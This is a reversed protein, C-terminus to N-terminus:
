ARKIKKYILSIEKLNEFTYIGLVLVNLILLYIINDINNILYIQVFILLISLIFSKTDISIYIMKKTDIYRYFFLVFYSLLTSIAAAIPGYIPIMILNAILNVLASVLTTKLAGNTTKSATYITGLFNSFIYFSFGLLLIPIFYIVEKYENGIFFHVITNIFLNILIIILFIFRTLSNFVTSYFIDTDKKNFEQVSSIQWAKAFINYFNSLLQPFKNAVSYIGLSSLGSFYTILYRDSVNTAWWTVSNPILPLCFRNFEKLYKIDICSISFYKYIRGFFLLIITCLLHASIYSIFYGEIGFHFYAILIINFSAFFISYLVDAFVYLKIKNIARSFEHIIRYLTVFFLIGIIVKIDFKFTFISNIGIAIISSLLFVIVFVGISTSFVRKNDYNSDLGFRIIAEVINFSILPILLTITINIFDILGYEETSLLHTFLPLMLFSIAASSINGVTFILSNKGLSKYKKDM